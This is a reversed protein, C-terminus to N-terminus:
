EVLEPFLGYIDCIYLSEMNSIRSHIVYNLLYMRPYLGLHRIELTTDFFPWSSQIWAKSLIISLDTKKFPKQIYAYAANGITKQTVAFEKRSSMVIVSLAPALEILKPFLDTGKMDPLYTDLLALPIDRFKQLLELAHAANTAVLTEYESTIVKSVDNHRSMEDEILLVKTKKLSTISVMLYSEIQQKCYDPTLSGIDYNISCHDFLDRDSDDKELASAKINEVTSQFLSSVRCVELDAIDKPPFDSDTPEKISVDIVKKMGSPHQDITTVIEEIKQPVLPGEKYYSAGNRLAEVARDDDEDFDIIIIPSDTNISILEKLVERWPLDKFGTDLFVILDSSSNNEYATLSIELADKVTQASLCDHVGGFKKYLFTHHEKSEIFLLRKRGKLHSPESM